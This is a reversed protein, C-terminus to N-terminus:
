RKVVYREKNESIITNGKSNKTYTRNDEVIVSNNGKERSELDKNAQHEYYECDKQKNHNYIACENGKTNAYCNNCDSM